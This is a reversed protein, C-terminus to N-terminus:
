ESKEEKKEEEKPAEVPAEEKKEEAPKEEAPTEAPTEAPAEEKKEEVPAETAEESKKADVEAKKADLEAKRKKGPKSKGARVKEAKIIGEGVLLNHVTETPQAGKELWHKIRDVVLSKEKTHPNYTGVNELYDSQPNKIKDQVIIRYIPHHKKGKRVFRISLM